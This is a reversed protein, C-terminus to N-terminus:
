QQAVKGRLMAIEKSMTRKQAEMVARWGEGIAHERQASFSVYASLRLNAQREAFLATEM